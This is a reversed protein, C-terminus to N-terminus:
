GLLFIPGVYVGFAILGVLLWVIWNWAFVKSGDLPPIPIM